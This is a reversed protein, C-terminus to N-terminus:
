LSLFFSWGGRLVRPCFPFIISLSRFSKSFTTYSKKSSTMELLQVHSRKVSSSFSRKLFQMSKLLILPVARCRTSISFMTYAANRCPTPYSGIPHLSASVTQFSRRGSIVTRCQHHYTLFKFPALINHEAICFKGFRQEDIPTEVAGSLTGVKCKNGHQGRRRIIKPYPASGSRRIIAAGASFFKRMCVAYWM